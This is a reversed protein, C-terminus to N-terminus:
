RGDLTPLLTYVLEDVDDGVGPAFVTSRSVETFGGHELVAVAAANHAAVRAYLPRAPERDVLLRLAESAVGRHWAHAAIWLTVERDDDVTFLAATGAFGGDETVVFMDVGPADRHRVIWEDFETRDDPHEATFAAMRRADPERMMEFIADLDDDEVVRLSVHAM